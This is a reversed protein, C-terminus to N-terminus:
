YGMDLEQAESALETLAHLSKKDSEKKYALLNDYSIKRQSGNGKSPIEGNEILSIIYQHSVNLIDAAQYTTLESYLEEKTHINSPILSKIVQGIQKLPDDNSGIVTPLEIEKLKSLSNVDIGNFNIRITSHEDDLNHLLEISNSKSSLDTFLGNADNLIRTYEERCTKIERENHDIRKELYGILRPTSEVRSQLEVISTSHKIKEHQAVEEMFSYSINIVSFLIPPFFLFYKIPVFLSAEPRGTAILYNIGYAGMLSELTVIILSLCSFILSSKGNNKIGNRKESWYFSAYSQFVKSSFYTLSCGFFISIIVSVFKTGTIGEILMSILAYITIIQFLSLGLRFIFKSLKTIDEITGSVTDSYYGDFFTNKKSNKSELRILKQRLFYEETHLDDIEKLIELNLFEHEFRREMLTELEFKLKLYSLTHNKRIWDEIGSDRIISRTKSKAKEAASQQSSTM